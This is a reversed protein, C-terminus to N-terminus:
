FKQTARRCPGAMEVSAVFSSNRQPFWVRGHGSLRNLSGMFKIGEYGEPRVEWNVAGETIWAPSSFRVTGDSNLLAAVKRDYDVRLTFSSGPQPENACILTVTEARAPSAMLVLAILLAGSFSVQFTGFNTAMMEGKISSAQIAAARRNTVDSSRLQVAAAAKFCFPM